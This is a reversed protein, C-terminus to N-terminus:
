PSMFNQREPQSTKQIDNKPDYHNYRNQHTYIPGPSMLAPDNQDANVKNNSNIRNSSEPYENRGNTLVTNPQIDGFSDNLNNANHRNDPRNIWNNIYNDEVPYGQSNM